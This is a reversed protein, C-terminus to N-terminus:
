PLEVIKGHKFSPSFVTKYGIMRFYNISRLFDLIVKLLPKINKKFSLIIMENIQAKM